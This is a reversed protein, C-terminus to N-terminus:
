NQNGKEYEQTLRKKTIKNQIHSLFPQTQSFFQIHISYLMAGMPVYVYVYKGNVDGDPTATNRIVTDM